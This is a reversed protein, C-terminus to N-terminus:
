IFLPWQVGWYRDVMSNKAFGDDEEGKSLQLIAMLTDFNHYSYSPTYDLSM